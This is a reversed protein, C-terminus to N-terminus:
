NLCDEPLNIPVPKFQRTLREGELVVEPPARSRLKEISEAATERGQQAALNLWKFASVADRPRYQGRVYILGITEQADANGGSAAREIWDAAQSRDQPVGLGDWYRRALAWQAGAANWEAATVCAQLGETDDRLEAPVKETLHFLCLEYIAIPNGRAKESRLMSLAETFAGRSQAANAETMVEFGRALCDGGSPSPAPAQAPKDAEATEILRRLTAAEARMGLRQLAEIPMFKLRGDGSTYRIVSLYGLQGRYDAAHLVERIGRKETENQGGFTATEAVLSRVEAVNVDEFYVGCVGNENLTLYVWPKSARLRWGLGPDNMLEKAQADSVPPLGAERAAAEVDAPSRALRLCYLEFQGVVAEAPTKDPEFRNRLRRAADEHGDREVAEIPVHTLSGDRGNIGGVELLWVFSLHGEYDVSYIWGRDPGGRKKDAERVTLTREITARLDSATVGIFRVTCRGRSDLALATTPSGGRIFWAALDDSLEDEPFPELGAVEAAARVEIPNGGRELCFTGFDSLVQAAPSAAPAPNATLAGAALPAAFVAARWASRWHRSHGIM